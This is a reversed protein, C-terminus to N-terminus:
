PAYVSFFFSINTWTKNALICTFVLMTKCFDKKSRLITVFNNPENAEGFHCEALVFKLLM